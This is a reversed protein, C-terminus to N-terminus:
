PLQLVQFFAGPAGGTLTVANTAFTYTGSNYTLVPTALNSLVNWNSRALALNTSWLIDYVYNTSGAWQLQLNGGPLMQASSIVLLSPITGPPYAILRYFKQLGFGGTSSFNDFWQYTGTTGTVSVLTPVAGAVTTWSIPSPSLSTTWQIQFQYNTPAVWTFLIGNTGGINTFVVGSIPYNTVAAAALQFNVQLTFQVTFSNTNQVGLYYTAGPVLPPTSSGTLISIGNNTNALLTYGGANAGTPLVNQNFLLSVPATASLLANTAADANAPVTISYYATSGPAVNATQPVGNSLNLLSGLQVLRYFRTPGAFPAQSGDDFFTFEANTASAPYNTNYSVINTFTNWVPPLNSSWQVQFLDNSPAFWTLLYGPTGNINTKIISSITIVNTFPPPIVPTTLHFNVEVAYNVTVSGPNQVGLYYTSGPVLAPLLGPGGNTNFIWTGSLVNGGLLTANTANPKAPTNTSFWINLVGNTAFLLTNTAFDANTPVTVQYYTINGAFINNTQPVGPTLPLILPNTSNILLQPTLALSHFYGASVAVVNTLGVPVSAQGASNDGWAELTGDAKLALSHFGGAAIAVANTLDAPVDTQGASDDGWAVVTGDYKLALSHYGGAAIAAVNNLNTPVDTEGVSDDGWATVTGDNKLALAHYTGGAIAVTNSASVPVNTLGFFNAGWAAVTGNNQLALSTSVGGAIVVVNSLGGPVNTQSLLNVGWSAVTGSSQLAMSYSQGGAVAVTVANSLGGPVTAQGFTNDGWAVIQGNTKLSLSHDYAGAIAVVNNLNTPVNIQGDYDAGWAVVNAEDLIQDFGPVVGESNSVVLRFHYAVNTLIPISNTVYVVNFGTGVAVPPTNSGYLTNTGWQFWATAAYGNPTAFGNLQASAGTVLQAPETYAFPTGLLDFDVEICADVPASTLNQVGLYYTLGPVLLPTGNTASLISIGGTSNALLVSAGNTSPSTPNFLLNVPSGTPFLTNTAFLANLPVNVQYWLIDSAPVFNCIETGPTVVAPAPNTNAFVFSLQWSDLVTNNTAGVRDDQIELTWLGYASTGILPTLDQEPQYYLNSLVLASTLSVDDLTPGASDPEHNLDEFELRNLGGTGILPMNVYQWGMSLVTTNKYPFAANTVNAGAWFVSLTHNTLGDPNCAHAFRLNYVQGAVTPIDQYIMGSTNGDMDISQNGAAPQWYPNGPSKLGLLDVNGSAITWGTLGTTMSAIAGSGLPAVPSEFSGNAILNAAAVAGGPVFPTPAFKIPIMPSPIPPTTINTDDTFTLYYFNTQVGGATYTWADGNVGNTNGLQNIIITLGSTTTFPLNVQGTGNTMGTDFLMNPSRYTYNGNTNDYVTMQDPIQFFNWSIPLIGSSTSVAVFNTVSNTTGSATYNAIDNTSYITAGAGNTSTGGRNQMLLYRTGDPSILTFVLDSIRPHEVRLGVAISAITENTAGLGPYNTIYAYSVADDLLPVPGSAGFDVPQVQGVGFNAIIYYEQPQTSANYLTVFYRGPEIPPVDSPGVTIIGGPPPPPTPPNNLIVMKDYNTPPSTPTPVPQEGLKEFLQGPPPTLTYATFPPIGSVNTAAITLNTAGVPVDIFGYYYGQASIAVNIGQNLPQHPTITITFSPTNTVYGTETLNDDVETLIWPGVGQQGQFSQLSGPGDPPVSGAIPSPGDDYIFSYPGPPNLLTDHNNLVVAKGNHSLTGILDGFREHVITDNVIVDQVQIPQIALAFIYATGPRKNSGDPINIPLLLGNVTEIGNQTTSFPQQSFVPLFGYEAAVATESKVGIYYIQNPQSNTYAVFETGGNDLASANGNVGNVCNSIVVPDLNTLGAAGPGTAVYLDIDAEPTTPNQTPNAQVGMRPMSLTEPLFTVFAANTFGTTNQVVYFHWQNTMGVTVVATGTYNSVADVQNTGLLPTNAGALQNFFVGGTANFNTSMGNANVGVMTIDQDGTPNSVLPNATVTIANTVEGEGCAIVLAYDQVVNNSQATVANVNVSYGLITVTYSGAASSPLFVNEVNNITDLNPAANTNWTENNTSSAPIDNGFYVDGTVNNSVMLILNNVLKIAAAPNGPPDTWALTVRLPLSLAATTSNTPVTVLYSQSDGTALANTPSQDLFLVSCPANLQNTLGPPVSNQINPLGWGEYNIDNTVTFTYNGVARSGNILMAKLLAPSPTVHLTNTFYDQILALTGSVAPTAMSTGSEYRYWPGITENLNSLVTFYDGNDNTTIITTFLDYGVSINTTNGISYNFGLGQVQSLYGPGGDPPISLENSLTVFDYTAPNSAIPYNNQSVYIPLTPFPTPSSVNQLIQIIVGVANQPVYFGPYNNQGDPPVIQDVFDNYTYNTPNYYASQDWQESRTSVVFSGPAVVDPKFRGYAGEIGIGVNGRSSYGAVQFSTDTQPQWVPSANGGADTVINTINRLQELAGVTIVNKATGPSTITDPSPGGGGDNGGGENGAAFVFLVPQSGTVLPLADRVAADYSAAALDYSNDGVYTWSNNSILANTLAPATQLYSDSTDSTGTDDLAAVSYLRAAPAKGRFDAFNTSGQPPNTMTYSMSGNGAIIGAVHTGHGNTDVISLPSDAIIRSPSASGPHEASGTLGFDPHGADIGTDNVEVLVNSGSLGLYNTPTITDASIGLTVRALDNALARRHALEMIQVGPLVALATWNQPPTVRVIPGFPSQDTAVVTGGLQKIQDATAAATNPFLGLTLVSNDPLNKQNVALGLLSESIKYYPEYPTVSQVGTQGALGAAGGAAVTVLYANNPIYSVIQAGAASLAARFASNIPGNAQVIYAGPDGKSQLNKPISLNLAVRTDLLANELLIAHPDSMLQVLSKKTNTLRYAFANIKPANNTAANGCGILLPATSASRTTTLTPRVAPATAKQVARHQGAPWFFWTGALLLLCLLILSWSRTKM